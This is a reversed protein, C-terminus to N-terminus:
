KEGALHRPGPQDHPDLFGSTIISDHTWRFHIAGRKPTRLLPTGARELPTLADSSGPSTMRQSVIVTRPRAWTYLMGTNASKGGHHPALMLDIPEPQAQAVLEVLGLQDLDGTLM